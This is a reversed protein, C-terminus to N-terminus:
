VKISLLSLFCDTGQSQCKQWKGLPQGQELMQLAMTDSESVQTGCQFRLEHLQSTPYIEEVGYKRPSNHFDM